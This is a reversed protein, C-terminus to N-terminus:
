GCDAAETDRKTVTDIRRHLYTNFSGDSHAFVPFMGVATDPSDVFDEFLLDVATPNEAGVVFGILQTPAGKWKDQRGVMGDSDIFWPYPLVGNQEAPQIMLRITM